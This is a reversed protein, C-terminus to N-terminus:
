DDDEDEDDPDELDEEDVVDDTPTPRGVFFWEAPYITEEDIVSKKIGSKTMLQSFAFDSAILETVNSNNIQRIGADSVWLFRNTLTLKTISPSLKAIDPTANTILHIEGGYARDAISAYVREQYGINVPQVNVHKLFPAYRCVREIFAIAVDRHSDGPLLGIVNCEFTRLASYSAHRHATYIGSGEQVESPRIQGRIKLEVLREHWLTDYDPVLFPVCYNVRKRSAYELELATLNRMTKVAKILSTFAIGVSGDSGDDYWHYFSVRELTAHNYLPDFEYSEGATSMTLSKINSAAIAQILSTPMGPVRGLHLVRLNTCARVLAAAKDLVGEHDLMPIDLDHVAHCFDVNAALQEIASAVRVSQAARTRVTDEQAEEEDDTIASTYLPFDLVLKNPRTMRAIDKVRDPFFDPVLGVIELNKLPIPLYNGPLRVEVAPAASLDCIVTELHDKNVLRMATVFHNMNTEVVRARISNDAVRTDGRTPLLEAKVTGVSQLEPKQLALDGMGRTISMLASRGDLMEQIEGIIVPPLNTLNTYQLSPAGDFLPGSDHPKDKSEIDNDARRKNRAPNRRPKKGGRDDSSSMHDAGHQTQAHHIKNLMCVRPVIDFPSMATNTVPVISIPKPQASTM